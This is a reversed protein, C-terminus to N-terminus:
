EKHQSRYSEKLAKLTSCFIRIEKESCDKSLEVIENIYPLTAKKLSDCFFDDLTVDLANALVVFKELSAKTHACEIHSLHTPSIGSLESLKEQTYGKSNRIQSVRKGLKVYDLVNEM